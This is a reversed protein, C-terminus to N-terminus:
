HQPDSHVTALFARHSTHPGLPHGQMWTPSPGWRLSLPHGPWGCCLAQLLTWPFFTSLCALLLQLIPRPCPIHVCPLCPALVSPGCPPLPRHALSESSSPLPVRLVSPCLFALTLLPPRHLIASPPGELAGAPNARLSDRTSLALGQSTSKHRSCRQAWPKRFKCQLLRQVTPVARHKATM